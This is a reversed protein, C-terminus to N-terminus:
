STIPTVYSSFYKLASEASKQTSGKSRIQYPHLFEQLFHLMYDPHSKDITKEYFLKVGKEAKKQMVSFKNESAITFAEKIEDSPSYFLIKSNAYDHVVVAINANQEPNHLIAWRVDPIM